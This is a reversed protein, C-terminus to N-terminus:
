FNYVAGIQGGGAFGVHTGGGDGIILLNIGLPIRLFIDLPISPLTYSVGPTAMIAINLTFIGSGGWVSPFALTINGGATIDLKNKEDIKVTYVDYHSSIDIGFGNVPWRYAGWGWGSSDKIKVAGIYYGLGLQVDWKDNIDFTGIAGNFPYALIVGAGFKTKTEAAGVAPILLLLVLITAVLAKKM